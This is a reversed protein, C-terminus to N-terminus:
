QSRAIFVTASQVNVDQFHLNQWIKIFNLAYCIFAGRSLFEFNSKPLRQKQRTCSMGEVDGPNGLSTKFFEKLILHDSNRACAFGFSFM